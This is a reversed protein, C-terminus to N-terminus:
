TSVTLVGNQYIDVEAFATGITNQNGLADFQLNNVATTFNFIVTGTCDINSGVGSCIFNPPTSNYTPQTTVVIDSGASSAFTIDQAAFQTTVIDGNSLSDFNVITAQASGGALLLGALSSLALKSLAFRVNM